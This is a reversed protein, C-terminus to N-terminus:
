ASVADARFNEMILNSVEVLVREASAEAATKAADAMARSTKRDSLLRRVATALERENRVLAAGGSGRMEAYTEVFNFTYPGHLISTHLRAPELPNHGGKPTLSGGVFAIDALRYFLGLEGLTDAVYIETEARIPQHNSRQEAVLGFDLALNKVEEGREPHRPALLTLLDPYTERLSRHADFVADEEGPHTSAALWVPRDGIQARLTELELADSPLPAAANKLNGFSTVTRSSLTQLREANKEDQAVLLDFASLVYKITDKKRTWEDFSKPSVRGNVLALFRVKERASLILNPWFESEVFVAADPRWHDLFASVFRPHDLPIFQHIARDPLREAMLRASTVTGTTVLFSLASDAEALRRVLPLVSLSEGVSAGHIWLLPGSPRAAGAVGRREDIRAPDEKGAKLRRQLAFEAIPGAARSATRYLRLGMPEPAADVTESM